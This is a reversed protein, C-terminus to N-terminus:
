FHRLWQEVARETYRQLLEARETAALREFDQKKQEAKHQQAALEARLQAQEKNNQELAWGTLEREDAIDQARNLEAQLTRRRAEIEALAQQQQALAAPDTMTQPPQNGGLM